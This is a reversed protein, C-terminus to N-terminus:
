AVGAIARSVRNLESPQLSYLADKLAQVMDEQSPQYKEAFADTPQETGPCLIRPRHEAPRGHHHKRMLTMAPLARTYHRTSHFSDATFHYTSGAPMVYTASRRLMGSKIFKGLGPKGEEGVNYMDYVEGGAYPAVLEWTEHEIFGTLVYSTMDWIHDHIGANHNPIAPLNKHWVHLRTMPAIPVQIFGNGHFRLSGREMQMAQIVEHFISM